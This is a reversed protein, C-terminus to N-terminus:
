ANGAANRARHQQYPLLQPYSASNVPDLEGSRRAAALEAKVQARTLAAPQTQSVAPSLGDSTATADTAFAPAAAAITSVFLAVIIARNM